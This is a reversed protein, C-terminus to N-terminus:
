QKAATDSPLEGFRQRYARAFHGLSHFGCSLAVETVSKSTGDDALMTRARELRLRKLYQSPSEGHVEQFYRFISRVSTGTAEAIGAVDIPKSFNELIFDEAQKLQSRSPRPSSLDLLHSHNHPLHILLRLLVVAHIQEILSDHFRRELADLEQAGRFVTDRVYRSFSLNSAAPQTFQVADSVEEGCLSALTQRLDEPKIRIFLSSHGEPDIKRAEVSEPIVYGMNHPGTDIERGQLAIRSSSRTQFVIRLYDVPQYLVDLAADSKSAFFPLKQSQVSNCWYGARGGPFKASQVSGSAVEELQHALEQMNRAQFAPYKRLLM